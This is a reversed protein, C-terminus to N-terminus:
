TRLERFLWARALRWERKVTRPSRGLVHATEEVNLGAFFRMEVIRGQEPSCASLRELAQNLDLIDVRDPGPSDDAVDRAADIQVVGGVGGRKLAHRARAHDVLIRRMLHAAVAFFHARNEWKARQQDVLGLYLEHILATPELSHNASERLLERRALRHLEAYVASLLHDLAEPDGTNLALLLGTIDPDGGAARSM